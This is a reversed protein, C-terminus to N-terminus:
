DLFYGNFFNPTIYMSWLVSPLTIGALINKQQDTLKADLGVRLVTIVFPTLLLLAIIVLIYPLRIIYSWKSTGFILLLLYIFYLVIVILSGIFSFAIEAYSLKKKEDESLENAQILRYCLLGILVLNAAFFPANSWKLRWLSHATYSLSPLFSRDKM